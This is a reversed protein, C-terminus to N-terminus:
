VMFIEILKGDAQEILLKDKDSLRQTLADERRIARRLAESNTCDYVEAIRELAAFDEGSLNFTRKVTRAM